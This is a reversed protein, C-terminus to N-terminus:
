PVTLMHLYSDIGIEAPLPLQIKVERGLEFADNNRLYHNIVSKTNNFM